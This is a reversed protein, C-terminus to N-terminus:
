IKALESLSTEDREWIKDAQWGPISVIAKFDQGNIKGLNIVGM